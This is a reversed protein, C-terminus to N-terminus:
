VEVTVQGVADAEEVTMGKVFLPPLAAIDDYAAGGITLAVVAEGVDLKRFTQPNIVDQESVSQRTSEAKSRSAGTATTAHTNTYTPSDFEVEAQGFLYSFYEITSQDETQFAMKQRFNQLTARTLKEDGIAAVFSEYGQASIVGVCRSSRSKDWFTRDGLGAGSSVTIVEQYEDCVFAVPTTQNWTPEVRRRDMVNFFRLKVMTYVTKAGLGYKSLPLDLLFAGGELVEQMSLVGEGGQCFAEDIEPLAFIGIVQALQSRAGNQVKEDFQPFISAVYQRYSDLRTFDTTAEAARAGGSSIEAQLRALKAAAADKLGRRGGDTYIAEYLGKLSYREPMCGLILGLNANVLDTATNTWFAATPSTNGALVIASKLFTAATEPTLGALLNCPVGGVGIRTVRRGVEAALARVTDGYDGKVDFVLMGCLQELAQKVFRNIAYITNHTVVCGDVVFLHDAADVEICVMERASVEEIRDIQRLVPYKSRATFAEAKRSLRFPKINNPIKAHIRFSLRGNRKEGRHTYSTIRETISATGGLSQVLFLVDRALRPSTTTYDVAGGKANAGDSDFLGQLTHVRTDVDAFKYDDPVFKEHSPVALELFRIVEAVPNTIPDEWEEPDITIVRSQGYVPDRRKGNGAGPRMARLNCRYANDRSRQRKAAPHCRPCYKAAAGAPNFLATCGRCERSQYDSRVIHHDYPGDKILLADMARLQLRVNAVIEQDASTLHINCAHLTGDGILLGLLYPDIPLPRKPFEIPEVLPIAFRCGERTRALHERIARLTLVRSPRGSRGEKEARKRGSVTHESYYRDSATTVEWLHEDCCITSTGDDFTVKFAAKQGQPFVGRVRTEKGNRGMVLDGVKIDGIRRYGIPTLVPTDVDLAKGSGIGGFIVVNKAADDGRVVLPSGRKVAAGHGLEAFKGTAQGIYLRFAPDDRDAPPVRDSTLPKRPKGRVLLGAIGICGVLAITLLIAEITPLEVGRFYARKTASACGDGWVYTPILQFEVTGTTSRKPPLARAGYCVWGLRQAATTSPIPSYIHNRLPPVGWAYAARGFTSLMGHAAVQTTAFMGILVLVYMGLAAWLPFPVREQAPRRKLQASACGRHTTGRLAVPSGPVILGLCSACKRERKAYSYIPTGGM